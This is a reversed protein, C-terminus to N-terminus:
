ENVEQVPILNNANDIQVVDFTTFWQVVDVSSDVIDIVSQPVTPFGFRGDTLEIIDESKYWCTTNSVPFVGDGNANKWNNIDALALEAKARTNAVILNM